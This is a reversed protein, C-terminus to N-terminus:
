KIVRKENTCIKHTAITSFSQAKTWKTQTSNKYWVEYEKTGVGGTSACKVTISNGITIETVDNEIYSENVFKPLLAKEAAILKALTEDAILAKQADTLMEYAKRANEVTEKDNETVEAPIQNILYTVGKVAAQDAAAFAEAIARYRAIDAPAILAKQANTLAAFAYGAAEIADKDAVTVNEPDPLANFMATVAAAATLDALATEAATLKALTEDTILAKQADTLMEYAKRANEVAEKDNETVESPIQNILYTVGQVAEQDTAAQNAAVSIEVAYTVDTDTEDNYYLLNVTVTGDFTSNITIYQNNAETVAGTVKSSDSSTPAESRCYGSFNHLGKVIEDLEGNENWWDAMFTRPLSEVEVNKTKGNGAFTIIYSSYVPKAAATIPVITFVSLIMMLSLIISLPKRLKKSM